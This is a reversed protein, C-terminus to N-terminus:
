VAPVPDASARPGLVIVEGAEDPKAHDADVILFRHRVEVTGASLMASVPCYKHASLQVARHVAARDIDRGTVTHVITARVFVDPREERQVGEVVVSYDTVDQRKKELISIVDMGTCAALAVLVLETPRAGTDGVGDDVVVEHGSGTTVVFRLGAERHAVVHKSKV